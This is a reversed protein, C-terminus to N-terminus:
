NRFESISADPGDNGTESGEESRQKFKAQGDSEPGCDGIEWDTKRPLLDLSKTHLLASNNL